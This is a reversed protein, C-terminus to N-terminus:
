QQLWDFNVEYITAFVVGVLLPAIILLWMHRFYSSPVKSKEIREVMYSIILVAFAIPPIIISLLTAVYENTLWIISYIIIQILFSELLSLKFM